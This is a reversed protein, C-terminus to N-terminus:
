VGALKDYAHKIFSTIKSRMRQSLTPKLSQLYETYLRLAVTSEELPTDAFRIPSTALQVDYRSTQSGHTGSDDFGINRVLSRGPYLTLKRKLLASAYWRIAWSNTAGAIQRELMGTFNYAGGYNFRQELGSERLKQLLMAGDAEFEKWGRKWTAWGWCSAEYLFFTEPLPQKTPYCYGHLSIVEPINAYRTLGENMYRLFHPSTVLDDELVIVRDHTSVVQTVGDIIARALGRNTPQEVIHIAAFGKLEHIYQRVAAVAAAAGPDKPGDAFIYLISEAAEPNQQLAEVTERTHTPRNYVFLAIPAYKSKTFSSDPPVPPM